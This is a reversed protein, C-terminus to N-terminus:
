FLITAELRLLGANVFWQSARSRVDQGSPPPFESHGRNTSRLYGGFAGGTAGVLLRHHVATAVGFDLFASTEWTRISSRGGSGYRNKSGGVAVRPGFGVFRVVDRSMRRYNRVGLRTAVYFQDGSEGADGALQETVQRSRSGSLDVDFFLARRASTFRMVGAGDYGGISAFAAWQGPSFLVSDSSTAQAHSRSVLLLSAVLVLSGGARPLM